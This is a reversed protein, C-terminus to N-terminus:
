ISTTASKRFSLLAQADLLGSGTEEGDYFLVFSNSTDAFSECSDTAFARQVPRKYNIPERIFGEGILYVTYGFYTRRSM